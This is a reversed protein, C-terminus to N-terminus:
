QTTVIASAVFSFSIICAGRALNHKVAPGHRMQEFKAKNIHNGSIIRTSGGDQGRMSFTTRYPRGELERFLWFRKKGDSNRDDEVIFGDAESGIFMPELESLPKRGDQNGKKITKDNKVPDWEFRGPDFYPM